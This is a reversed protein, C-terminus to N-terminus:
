RKYLPAVLPKLTRRYLARAGQYLPSGFRLKHVNPYDTYRKLPAAMIAGYEAATLGLKKLVYDVIGPEEDPMVPPAQLQALADARTVIGSLVLSSLHTRRKDYGFRRMLYIGHAFKTYTSEHHKHGYARWGLERAMVAEAEARDFPWYDLLDYQKVSYFPPRAFPSFFDRHPFTALARNGFLGNISRIYHWDYHGDSWAACGVSETLFNGGRLITKIGHKQAMNHMSAVIAHDTPIEVDPTGSRLYAVQLSRFEEWDLVVTILDIDLREVINQINNVAFESNWGNDVHVALPKLGLEKAIIWASYSSDWGGSLGILCDYSRGKAHARVDAVMADLAPRWPPNNKPLADRDGDFQRCHNCVGDTDFEIDPDSTDMVCRGCIQYRRAEAM